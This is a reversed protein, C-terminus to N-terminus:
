QFSFKRCHTKIKLHHYPRKTGFLGIWQVQPFVHIEGFVMMQTLLLLMYCMKEQLFHTPKQFSYMRFFWLNWHPSLNM